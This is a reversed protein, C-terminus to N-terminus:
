SIKVAKKKNLIEVLGEITKTDVGYHKRKLLAEANTDELDWQGELLYCSCHSGNVEYLKRGKKLLVFATGSYDAYEYWAYLIKFGKIVSKDIAFDKLMDEVCNWDGFYVNEV